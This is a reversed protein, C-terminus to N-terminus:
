DSFLYLFASSSTSLHMKSLSKASFHRYEITLFTRFGIQERHQQAFDRKKLQPEYFFM